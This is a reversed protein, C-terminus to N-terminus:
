VVSKQLINKLGLTFNAVPNQLAFYKKQLDTAQIKGVPWDFVRHLDESKSIFSKHKICNNLIRLELYAMFDPIEELVVGNSALIKKFNNLQYISRKAKDDLSLALFVVRKCYLEVKKYLAIVALESVIALDDNQDVLNEGLVHDLRTLDINETSTLISKAGKESEEQSSILFDFQKANITKLSEIMEVETKLM